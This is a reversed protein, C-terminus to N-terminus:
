YQLSQMWYGPYFTARREVRKETWICHRALEGDSIRQM